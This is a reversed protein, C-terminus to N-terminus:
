KCFFNFPAPASCLDRYVSGRNDRLEIEESLYAVWSRLRCVDLNWFHKGAGLDGLNGNGGDGEDGHGASGGSAGGVNRDGQRRRLSPPGRSGERGLANNGMHQRWLIAAQQTLSWYNTLFIVETAWKLVAMGVKEARSVLNLSLSTHQGNTLGAVHEQRLSLDTRDTAARLLLSPTKLIIHGGCQKAIAYIAWTSDQVYSKVHPEVDNKRPNILSTIIRKIWGRTSM